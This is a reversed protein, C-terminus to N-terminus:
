GAAQLHAQLAANVAEPQELTSTHGAGPVEVWSAGDIGEVLGLARERAIAQDETGRLVLTPCRIRALEEVCGGRRIVGNVAKYITKDNAQLRRTM